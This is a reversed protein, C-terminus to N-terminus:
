TGDRESIWKSLNVNGCDTEKLTVAKKGKSSLNM